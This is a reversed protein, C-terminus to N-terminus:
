PIQTVIHLYIKFYMDGVSNTYICNYMYIPWAIYILYKPDQLFVYCLRNTTCHVDYCSSNYADTILILKDNFMSTIFFANKALLIHVSINIKAFYQEYVHLM